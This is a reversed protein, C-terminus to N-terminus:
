VKSVFRWSGHPFSIIPFPEGCRATSSLGLSKGRIPFATKRRRLRLPPAQQLTLFKLFPKRKFARGGPSSRTATLPIKTAFNFKQTFKGSFVGEGDRCATGGRGFHSAKNANFLFSIGIFTKLKQCQAQQERM